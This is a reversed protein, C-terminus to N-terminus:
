VQKGVEKTWQYGQGILYVERSEARSADPKYATIKEFREKLAQRVSAFAAGQFVKIVLGGGSVLHRLCLCLVVDVLAEMQADDVVSQGTRNAAIDSVVQDVRHGCCAQVIADQTSSDLVDGQIFTVGPITKMPLLDVAVVQGSPGVWDVLCQSWGGPSAGVDLVQMGSQILDYRSQIQKLKIASRSRFGQQVSAKVASDRVHRQYWSRSKHKRGSM